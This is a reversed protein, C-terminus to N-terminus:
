LSSNMALKNSIKDLFKQTQHDSDVLTNGKTAPKVMDVETGYNIAPPDSFVKEYLKQMIPDAKMNEPYKATYLEPKVAPVVSAKNQSQNLKDRQKLRKIQAYTYVTMKKRDENSSRTPAYKDQYESNTKPEPLTPQSM